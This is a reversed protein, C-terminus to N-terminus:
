FYIEKNAFFDFQNNSNTNSIQRSLLYRTQTSINFFHRVYNFIGNTIKFNETLDGRM